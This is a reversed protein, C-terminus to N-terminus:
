CSKYKVSKRRNIQNISNIEWVKLMKCCRVTDQLFSKWLKFDRLSGMKNNQVHKRAAENINKTSFLCHTVMKMKERGSNLNYIETM